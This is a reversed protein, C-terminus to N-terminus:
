VAVRARRRASRLAGGVMGFGGILLAWTAPEPVAVGSVFVLGQTHTEPLLGTTKQLLSLTTGDAGVGYVNIGGKLGLLQYITKGDSSQAIDIFGDPNPGQSPNGFAATGDILSVTGDSNLKYSSIAAGSASAVFFSKGDPSVVIWCASTPGNTFSPGTLIDQSLPNFGGSGNLAWTSVSGTQFQALMAPDGNAFFERSETTIVVPQGGIQVIEIGIASPLNRGASNGPLTSAVTAQPAATLAGGALVGYSTLEATSGGALLSSGANFGSVVLHSGDPSFAIDAPRVGLNRTSGAIPTLNGSTADFKFGTVNGSQDALGTFVGDADVNAVYVLGGSYAISVPGVGGTSVTSILTLSFDSNIRLASVTNSGANVSLLFRNNVNIISDQSVLPDLAGGSNFTGGSGGTAYNAIPTLTGDANQGFASIAAGAPDNTGAYVAGLFSAASADGMAGFALATGVLLALQRRQGNRPRAGPAPQPSALTFKFPRSM